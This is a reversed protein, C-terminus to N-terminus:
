RTHHEHKLHFSTPRTYIKTLMTLLRGVFYDFIKYSIRNGSSFKYSTIYICLPKINVVLTGELSHAHACACLNDSSRVCSFKSRIFKRKCIKQVYKVCTTRSVSSHQCFTPRLFKTPRRVCVKSILPFM